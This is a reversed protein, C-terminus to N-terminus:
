LALWSTEELSDAKKDNHDSGFCAEIIGTAPNNQAPAM